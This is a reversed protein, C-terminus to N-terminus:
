MAEQVQNYIFPVLTFQNINKKNKGTHWTIYKYEEGRRSTTRKNMVFMTM